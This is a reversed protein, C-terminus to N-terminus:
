PRAEKAMAADRQQIGKLAALLKFDSARAPEALIVAPHVVGGGPMLPTVGRCEPATEPSVNFM